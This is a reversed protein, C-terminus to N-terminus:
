PFPYRLLSVVDSAPLCIPARDLLIVTRVGKSAEFLM